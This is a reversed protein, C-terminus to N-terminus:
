TLLSLGMVNRSIAWLASPLTAKALEGPGYLLYARINSEGIYQKARARDQMYGDIDSKLCVTLNHYGSIDSLSVNRRSIYKQIQEQLEEPITIPLREHVSSNFRDREGVEDLGLAIGEKKKNLSLNFWKLAKSIWRFLGKGLGRMRYYLSRLGRLSFFRRGYSLLFVGAVLIIGIPILQSYLNKSLKYLYGGSLHFYPMVIAGLRVMFLSYFAAKFRRRSVFYAALFCAPTILLSADGFVHRLVRTNKDNTWLGILCVFGFVIFGLAFFQFVIKNGRRPYRNRKWTKQM